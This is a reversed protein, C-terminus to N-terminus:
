KYIRHRNMKIQLPNSQVINEYMCIWMLHRFYLLHKEKKFNIFKFGTLIQLWNILFKKHEWIYMGWREGKSWKITKSRNLLKTILSEKIFSCFKWRKCLYKFHIQKWYCSTTIFFHNFNELITRSLYTGEESTTLNNSIVPILTRYPKDSQENWITVGFNNQIHIIHFLQMCVDFMPEYLKKQRLIYKITYSQLLLYYMFLSYKYAEDSQIYLKSNIDNTSCKDQYNSIFNLIDALYPILNLWCDICMLHDSKPVPDAQCIDDHDDAPSHYMSLVNTILSQPNCRTSLQVHSCDM